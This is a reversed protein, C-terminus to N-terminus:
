KKAGKRPTKMVCKDNICDFIEKQIELCVKKRETATDWEIPAYVECYEENMKENISRFLTSEQEFPVPRPAKDVMIGSEDNRSSERVSKIAFSHVILDGENFGVHFKKHASIIETLASEVQSRLGEADPKSLGAISERANKSFDRIKAHFIRKHLQRSQLAGLLRGCATKPSRVCFNVMFRADDWLLYNKLFKNSGDFRFLKQLKSIEDKEYGLKIARVIMQDTILRVRHRYVNTTMYYKAMVYQEVAHIGDGSIMLQREDHEGKLVLSRHLQHIDFAGYQVGCFRSDRLLYDQKDADLPGSIISKLAPEGYGDNLLKIINECTEGGILKSIEPNGRIIQATVLEHIKEKKKVKSIVAKDAYLELAAESVHSFPGHGVDHLLAALRLLRINEESIRLQKAMLGAVHMVGLTHDFRTHLAGPYVLNAMALQRVGRLRQLPPTDLLKREEDTLHIFNHVPDRLDL